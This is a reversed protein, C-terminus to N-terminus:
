RGEGNRVLYEAVVVERRLEKVRGFEDTRLGRPESPLPPSRRSSSRPPLAPSVDHFAAALAVAIAIPRQRM